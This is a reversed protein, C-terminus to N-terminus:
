VNATYRVFVYRHFLLCNCAFVIFNENRQHGDKILGPVLTVTGYNGMVAVPIYLRTIQILRFNSEFDIGKFVGNM